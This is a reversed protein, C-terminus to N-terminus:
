MIVMCCSLLVCACTSGVLDDAGTADEVARWCPSAALWVTACFGRGDLKSGWDTTGGLACEHAAAARQDYGAVEALLVAVCVRCMLAAAYQSLILGPLDFGTSMM